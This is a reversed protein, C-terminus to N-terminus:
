RGELIEIRTQLTKVLNHLEQTAKIHYSHIQDYCVSMPLGNPAKDKFQAPVENVSVAHVLEPIQQIEQAIVGVEKKFPDNEPTHGLEYVKDYKYINVQNITTM